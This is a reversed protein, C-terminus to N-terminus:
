FTPPRSAQSGYWPIGTLVWIIGDPSLFPTGSLAPDFAAVVQSATGEGLSSFSVGPPGDGRSGDPNSLGMAVKVDLPLSRSLGTAVM